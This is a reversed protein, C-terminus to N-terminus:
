LAFTVNLLLCVCVCCICEGQGPPQTPVLAYSLLPSLSTSSPLSNYSTGVVVPMGAHTTLNVYDASSAGKATAASQFDCTDCCVRRVLDDGRQYDAGASSLAIVGYNAQMLVDTGLHWVCCAFVFMCHSASSAASLDRASVSSPLSSRVSSEDIASSMETHSATSARSPDSASSRRRRV